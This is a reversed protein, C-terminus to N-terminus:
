YLYRLALAHAEWPDVDSCNGFIVTTSNFFHLIQLLFSGLPTPNGYLVSKGNVVGVEKVLKAKL